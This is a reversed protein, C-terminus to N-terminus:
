GLGVRLAIMARRLLLTTYPRFRPGLSYEGPGRKRGYRGDLVLLLSISYAAVMTSGLFSSGDRLDRVRMSTDDHLDLHPQGPACGLLDHPNHGFIAAREAEGRELELVLLAEVSLCPEFTSSLKFM